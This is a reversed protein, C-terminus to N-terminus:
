LNGGGRRVMGKTFRCTGIWVRLPFFVMGGHSVSVGVVGVGVRDGISSVPSDLVDLCEKFDSM